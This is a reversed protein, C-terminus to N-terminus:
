NYYLGGNIPLAQGTIYGAEDTCLFAALAAIDEPEALRGVPIQKARMALFSGAPLGDRAEVRPAVDRMMDTNVNGPCIANVTIGSSALDASASRTLGLIATKATAYGLDRGYALFSLLSGMNIVRGWGREAMGPACAQLCHIAGFLNVEIIPRWESEPTGIIPTNGTTGANNVLIDVRGTQAVLVDVANRDTVDLAAAVASLGTASLRDAQEKVKGGNRDAMVVRAGDGLLRTAIALGIGQAAGTVLATRGDLSMM